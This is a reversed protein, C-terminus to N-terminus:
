LPRDDNSMGNADGFHIGTLFNELDNLAIRVIHSDCKAVEVIAYNIGRMVTGQKIEDHFSLECQM